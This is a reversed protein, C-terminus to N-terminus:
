NLSLSYLKNKGRGTDRIIHFLLRRKSNFCNKIDIMKENCESALKPIIELQFIVESIDRNEEVLRRINNLTTRAVEILLSIIGHLEKFFLQQKKYKKIDKQWQKEDYESSILYEVAGDETQKNYQDNYKPLIVEQIHNGSDLLEMITNFVIDAEFFYTRKNQYLWNIYILNERFPDTFGDDGEERPIARGQERMWRIADPNHLSRTHIKGTNWSFYTQCNICFMVDCNKVVTLDKMVFKNDGDIMFGNYKGLGLPEISIETLINKVTFGYLNKKINGELKLYNDLTIEIPAEFQKNKLVLTHKSNVIYDDGLNQKIKFMKDRGEFIKLVTRKSGDIGRLNDGIIIEKAKKTTGNYLMIETEPSFCGDIKFIGTGCKPCPKTDKKLEKLNEIVEQNCVHDKELPEHCKRCTLKDCLTCIWGKLDKNDELFGKCSSQSCKKIFKYHNVKEEKIIGLSVRDKQEELNINSLLLDYPALKEKKKDYLFKRRAVRKQSLIRIEEEIKFLEEDRSMAKILERDLKAREANIKNKEKARLACRAYFKNEEIVRKAKQQRQPLFNKEEELALVGLNNMIENSFKVSEGLRSIEVFSFKKDCEPFICGLSRDNSLHRKFCSLCIDKKCDPCTIKKRIVGTYEECCIVCTM